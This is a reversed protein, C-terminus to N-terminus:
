REGEQVVAEPIPRRTLGTGSWAVLVLVLAWKFAAATVPYSVGGTVTMIPSVAFLNTSAHFLVALM